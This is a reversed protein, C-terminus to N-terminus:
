ARIGPPTHPANRLEVHGLDPTSWRGGWVLGIREAEQGIVQWAPDTAAWQIKNAGHLAYMAYPAVDMADSKGAAPDHAPLTARLRRPLHRSLSTWSVGRRLNAEHEAVTRLTDVIVVLTQREVLRALFECALPYLDSSLDDLSRSM